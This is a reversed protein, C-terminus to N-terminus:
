QVDCYLYGNEAIYSTMGAEKCKTFQEVRQQNEENVYEMSCGSLFISAFM